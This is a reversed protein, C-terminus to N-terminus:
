LKIWADLGDPNDPDVGRKLAHHLCLVQICYLAFVAKAEDSGCAPLVINHGPLAEPGAGCDLVLLRQTKKAIDGLLGAQLGRDGSSVLAIVLVDENIQVMPGHRVDLMHYHNSDRRCIEKFALAGEEALGAPGSDALVVARTWPQQALSQLAAEQQPCFSVSYAELEKLAELAADNGGAIYALGLIAIYLNSVTRTQCVAKDYAWPLILNLDTHAEVPANAQTCISLIRSGFQQKCLAAARVVESTAGSRSLLLITSNELTHKYASFNVLLDGAAIATAAIGAQQSLLTAASKALSYSSGCGLVCVSKVDTLSQAIVDKHALLADVTQTAAAFQSRLEQEILYM